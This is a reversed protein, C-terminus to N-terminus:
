TQGYLKEARESFASVMTDCIQNFVSGFAISALPNSIEFELKLAIKSADDRLPLFKWVGEFHSFPGEILSMTLEGNEHHQNRTSFTRNFGGKSIELQADTFEKTKSIIKSARCWPLFKPYSEIDSVLERMAQAPFKVLASRQIKKM